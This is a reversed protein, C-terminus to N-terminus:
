DQGDNGVVVLLTDEATLEEFTYRGLVSEGALLTYAARPPVDTFTATLYCVEQRLETDYTITGPAEIAATVSPEGSEAERLTLNSGGALGALLGQGQCAGDETVEANELPLIIEVTVDFPTALRPSGSAPTQQAPIPEQAPPPPAPPLPDQEATATPIPATVEETPSPQAPPESPRTPLLPIERLRPESTAEPTEAAPQVPTGAPPTTAPTSEVPVITDTTPAPGEEFEEDIVFGPALDEPNPMMSWIGGTRLGDERVAIPDTNPWRPLTLQAIRQLEAITDVEGIGFALLVQVWRDQRVLLMGYEGDFSGFMTFPLRHASSQDGIPPIQVDELEGLTFGATTDEGELEAAISASFIAPFTRVASTAAQTDDHIQGFAMIGSLADFYVDSNSYSRAVEDDGTSVTGIPETGQAAAIAPALLLATLTTLLFRHLM